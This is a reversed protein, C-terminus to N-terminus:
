DRLQGNRRTTTQMCRCYKPQPAKRRNWCSVSGGSNPLRALSPSTPHRTVLVLLCRVPVVVECVSALQRGERGDLWGDLWGGVM